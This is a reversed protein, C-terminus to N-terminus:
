LSFVHVLCLSTLCSSRESVTRAGDLIGGGDDGFDEPSQGFGYFVACLGLHEGGDFITSAECAARAAAGLELRVLMGSRVRGM